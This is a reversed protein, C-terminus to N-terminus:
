KVLLIKDQVRLEGADFRIFYVGSAVNRGKEDCGNWVSSYYGPSQIESVLAKIQRGCVDYIIIEVSTQRPLAYEVRTQQVFPNPSVTFAYSIPTQAGLYSQAGQRSSYVTEYGGKIVLKVTVDTEASSGDQLIKDNIRKDDRYLSYGVVNDNEVESRLAARSMVELEPIPVLTIEGSVKQIDVGKDLEFNVAACYGREDRTAEILLVVEEGDRWPEKFNGVDFSILRYVGDKRAIVSGASQEILVDYPRQPRYVTFVLNDLGEVELDAYVIHSIGLERYDDVGERYRMAPQYLRADSYDITKKATERSQPVLSWVPTRIADPTKGTRIEIDSKQVVRKAAMFESASNSYETPNWSTDKVAVFEYGHGPEIPFDQTTPHNGYWGLAPHHIWSYYMQTEEDIMSIKTVPDGNPSLEDTIASVASYVVNYPIAVWNRDGTSGPNENLDVLGDPDNCGVFIVTDDVVAVMEYARGPIIPFNGPVGSGYWGIVPHYIWSYYDQTEQDLMTIKSIPNGTPSLDDTIDRVSDYESTFPLGVWNRDSQAGTNENIFRYFVYSMNSKKSKNGVEDVAKVLYYHSESSDLIATDVYVTEPHMVVGVSDSNSPVFSPSTSRYVVYCDMEEPNGLTDTTIKNWTLQADTGSKEAQIVAPASPPIAEEPEAIGFFKMISDLLATRTSPPTADNLLGLEFSTGVTRYTGPDNAVGCNYANNGDHFILFGTGTANIHDMYSNEGSYTFNMADTFTGSEGLVPGLDSTGDAIADIGFLPGFDYGGMWPPDYYWIDGGELYVRGGQNELYDVLAAAEPGGSSIVHNSPYIGVCVLVSQYISLDPALSTGYDGSYGLDTLISDMKNGPTATPDPNWLYYHKRGVVITFQLTDRYVGSVVELELDVVTGNSAAVDATVNYPDSANDASIGPNITGFSGSGDTITIHPSDTSLISTVDEAAAGGENEITVILDATEGPDLIGDGNNDNEVSVGVFSLIPAYVTILPYSTFLSDHTDHFELTFNIKHGNPCNDAVSFAYYPASLSSDDEPIDGYFSSDISMSVYPDSESLLGYIDQATGTGVNKAWVGYGVTEAPNVIGDNNGGSSDDTLGRSFVVYPYDSSTIPVGVEYRYHNAKTVTVKMINGPTQPSIPIHVPGGTGEGVGIIEGNVTLAIVSGNDATVTFTTAGAVLNDEHSVLLSEPVESYLTVFADGHHHFLHDTYVRLGGAGAVSDPFWMADLYYKGSTMAMCPRLDDSGTMRTLPYGPDFDPYM